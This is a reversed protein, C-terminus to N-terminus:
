INYLLAPNWSLEFGFFCAPTFIYIFTVFEEVKDNELESGGATKDPRRAGGWGVGFFLFV